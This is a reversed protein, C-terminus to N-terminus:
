SGEGQRAPRTILAFVVAALGITFGFCALFLAM